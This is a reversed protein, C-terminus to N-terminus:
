WSRGCCKTLRYCDTNRGNLSVLDIFSHVDVVAQHEEPCTFSGMVWLLLPEETDFNNFVDTSIHEEVILTSGAPWLLM